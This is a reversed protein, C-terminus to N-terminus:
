LGSPSGALSLFSPYLMVFGDPASCRLLLRTRSGYTVWGPVLDAETNTFGLSLGMLVHEIGPAPADQATGLERRLLGRSPPGRPSHTSIRPGRHCM